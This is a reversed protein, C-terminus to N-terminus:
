PGRRASAPNPTRPWSCSTSTAPTTSSTEGWSGWASSLWSPPRLWGASRLVEEALAALGQGVATLDDIGLLDRAAIRLLELRKWRRLADADDVNRPVARDLEALVDLAAPEALCLETLSRSASTVTVFAEALAPDDALRTVVDPGTEGIREAAVAAWAPAASHEILQTLAREAM